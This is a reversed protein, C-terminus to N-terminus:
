KTAKDVVMEVRGDRLRVCVSEALVKACAGVKDCTLRVHGTLLLKGEPGMEVKDASAKWQCGAVHVRQKGAAFELKGADPSHLAMRVCTACTGDGDKKQLRSKGGARVIRFTAPSSGAPAAAICPAVPPAIMPPLPPLPPVPVPLPGMPHWPQMSPVPVPYYGAVPPLAEGTQPPCGYPGCAPGSMGEDEHVTVEVHRASHGDGVDGLTVHTPKDLPVTRVAAHAESHIRVGGTRYVKARETELSVDVRARGPREGHVQVDLTERTECKGKGTPLSRTLPTSAGELLRLCYCSAGADSGAEDLVRVQV